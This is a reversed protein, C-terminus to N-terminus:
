QRLRRTLESELSTATVVRRLLAGRDSLLFARPVQLANKQVVRYQTAVRRYKDWVVPFPMPEEDFIRQTARHAEARDPNGPVAVLVIALGKGAYRKHLRRLAPLAAKCPPCVESFFDVLVLRATSRVKALNVLKDSLDFLEFDYPPEPDALSVSGGLLLVCSLAAVSTSLAGTRM